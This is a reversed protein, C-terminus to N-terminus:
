TACVYGVAPNLAGMAGGAAAWPAGAGAGVKGVDRRGARLETGRGVSVEEAIEMAEPGVPLGGAAGIGPPPGGLGFGGGTRVDGGVRCGGGGVTTRSAGTVGWGAGVDAGVVGGGGM